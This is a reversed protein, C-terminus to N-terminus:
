SRRQGGQGARLALCACQSPHAPSNEGAKLISDEGKLFGVTGVATGTVPPEVANRTQSWRRYSLQLQRAISSGEARRCARLWKKGEPIAVEDSKGPYSSEAPRTNRDEREIRSTSWSRLQEWARRLRS